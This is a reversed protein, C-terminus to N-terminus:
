SGPCNPPKGRIVGGILLCWCDRCIGKGKRIACVLGLLLVKLWVWLLIFIRDELKLFVWIMRDRNFNCGSYAVALLRWCDRCIGKGKRIACVLGFLLVKSWVWLLIFIRDELKLFVRSIRNRNINCGWTLGKYFLSM